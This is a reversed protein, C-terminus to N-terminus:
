SCHSFRVYVEIKELANMMQLRLNKDFLYIMYQAFIPVPRVQDLRTRINDTTIHPIRCQTGFAQYDIIYGVQSIKKLAHECRCMWVGLCCYISLNMM